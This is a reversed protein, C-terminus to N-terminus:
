KILERVRASDVHQLFSIAKGGSLHWV